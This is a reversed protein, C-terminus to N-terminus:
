NTKKKKMRNNNKYCFQRLKKTNKELPTDPFRNILTIKEKFMKITDNVQEKNMLGQKSQEQM